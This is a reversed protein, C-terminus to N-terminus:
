VSVRISFSSSWIVPPVVSKALATGGTTATATETDTNGHFGHGSHSNSRV